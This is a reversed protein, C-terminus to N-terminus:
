EKVRWIEREIRQMEYRIDRLSDYISMLQDNQATGPIKDTSEMVDNIVLDMLFNATNLPAYADIRKDASFEEISRFTSEPETNEAEWARALEDEYMRDVEAGTQVPYGVM